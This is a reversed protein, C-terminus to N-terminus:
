GSLDGSWLVVAVGMEQLANATVALNKKLTPQHAPAELAEGLAVVRGYPWAGDPLSRMARPLDKLRVNLVQKRAANLRTMGGRDVASSNEDPLYIRLQIMTSSVSLFPNQWQSEERIALYTSKKAPPIQALEQRAKIKAANWSSSNAPISFSDGGRCGAPLFLAALLLVRALCWPHPKM